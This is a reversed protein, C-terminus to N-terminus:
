TDVFILKVVASICYTIAHLAAREHKCPRNETM